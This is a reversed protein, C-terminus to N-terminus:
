QWGGDLTIIQGTLYRHSEALSLALEAVEKPLGFRGSPIEDTLRSREESSLFQNM